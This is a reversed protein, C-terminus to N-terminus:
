ILVISLGIAFLLSLKIIMPCLKEKDQKAKILKEDVVMIFNDLQGMENKADFKGVNKVIEQLINKDSEELVSIGELSLQNTELYEQYSNIFIKFQRKAEVKKLFNGIKDQKFSINLRLHNLFNKLNNFFDYRDKYQESVARAILMIVFILIIILAIKM